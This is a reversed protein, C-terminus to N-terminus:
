WSDYHDRQYHRNARDAKYAEAAELSEFWWNDNHGRTGVHRDGLSGISSADRLSADRNAYLFQWGTTGYKGRLVRPMTIVWDRDYKVTSIHGCVGEYLPKGAKLHRRLQRTTTIAGKPANITAVGHQRRM